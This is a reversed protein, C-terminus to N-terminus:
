GHPSAVMPIYRVPPPFSGPPFLLLAEARGALDFRLRAAARCFADVFSRYRCLMKRRVENTAAHVLPAPGKKPRNPRTFPDQRLIRSRGLPERGSARVRQATEEEVLGVLEACRSRHLEPSVDRWCPMPTLELSELEAIEERRPVHGRSTLRYERTRDFWTGHIPKGTLLSETSSAGPWDVPRRVLHEKCGHRLIYLLREVQAQEEDSVLIAQYRRGWFKERWRIQRGVERALNSNLHNMFAALRDAGQVTLLLHFHNSLFCYAHLEVPFLRAARALAGRILDAILPTPRLLFRGQVTRCTVEVLSGPPIFRIRRGMGVSVSDAGEWSAGAGRPQDGKRRCRSPCTRPGCAGLPQCRPLCCRPVAGQFPLVRPPLAM